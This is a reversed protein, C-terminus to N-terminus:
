KETKKSNWSFKLLNRETEKNADDKGKGRPIKKKKTITAIAKIGNCTAANKKKNNWGALLFVVENQPM